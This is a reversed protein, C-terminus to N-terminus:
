LVMCVIFAAQRGPPLALDAKAGFDSAYKENASLVEAHLQTHAMGSIHFQATAQLQSVIAFAKKCCSQSPHKCSIEKKHHYFRFTTQEFMFDAFVRLSICTCWPMVAKSMGQHRKPVLTAFLSRRTDLLLHASDSSSLQNQPDLLQLTMSTCTEDV